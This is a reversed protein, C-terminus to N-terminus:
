YKGRLINDFDFEETFDPQQQGELEKPVFFVSGDPRKYMVFEGHEGVRVAKNPAKEM